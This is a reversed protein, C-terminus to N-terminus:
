EKSKGNSGGGETPLLSKLRALQPHIEAPLCMCAERNLNKGCEPCLGKCHNQCLIKMPISLVIQERICEDIEIFDGHFYYVNDSDAAERDQAFQERVTITAQKSIAELCRSCSTQYTFDVEAELLFGEGTNTMMGKVMVPAMIIIALDVDFQLTGSFAVSGGRLERISGISVKM